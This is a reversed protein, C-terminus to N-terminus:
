KGTSRNDECMNGPLPLEPSKRGLVKIKKALVEMRKDKCMMAAELDEVM